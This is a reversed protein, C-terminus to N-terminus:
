RDLMGRLLRRARFLHAKSTGEAIGLQQSIELHGYGAVDHLMFVARAGPPLRRIATELDLQLAVNVGHGPADLPDGTDQPDALDSEIAVRLTRRRSSRASSLTVNVAIRHLWSTFACDGRFTALGEWARVFTDQVLEEATTESGCM